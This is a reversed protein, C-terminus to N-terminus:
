LRVEVFAKRRLEKVWLQMQNEMEEQYLENHFPALEEDGECSGSSATRRETVKIIHFGFQTRVVPSIDGVQMKFAVKEFADVMEGRGFCGLKGDPAGSDDSHKLAYAAFDAGASLEAQLKSARIRMDEAAKPDMTGETKFLIHSACVEL